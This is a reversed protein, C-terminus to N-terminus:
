ILKIIEVKEGKKKACDYPPRVILCNSEQLTKILSSDQEKKPSVMIKNEIITFNGRMFHLRSGNAPMSNDLDALLRNLNNEGFNFIKELLPIIFLQTCLYASVPNGPLGIIPKKQLIGAFTPKGPKINVKEFIFKAGIKKITTKVLDYNGVSAGGITIILDSNILSNKLSETISDVTDNSIPLIKCKCSYNNLLGAIGYANSAYIKNKNNKEGPKVLENGISIIAIKIKKFVELKGYGMSAMLLLEKPSIIKNLQLYKGKTFDAGKKRIFSYDKNKCDILQIKNNKLIKVNEQIIVFNSGKPIAAGTFIRIATGVKVTKKSPKGASSEDIIVLKRKYRNDIKNIAYGDMASVDFPPNNCLTILDKSIIRGSGKKLNIKETEAEFFKKLSITLKIADHFSILKEKTESLNELGEVM